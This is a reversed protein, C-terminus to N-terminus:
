LSIYGSLANCLFEPVWMLETNINVIDYDPASEEDELLINMIESPNNGMLSVQRTINWTDRHPRDEVDDAITVQM